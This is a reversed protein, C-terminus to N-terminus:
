YIEFNIEKLLQENPIPDKSWSDVGIKHFIEINLGFDKKLNNKLDLTRLEDNLFIYGDNNKERCKLLSSSADVYEKIQDYFASRHIIFFEIKLHPFFDNFETQIDRIKRKNNIEIKYM